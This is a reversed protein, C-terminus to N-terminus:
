NQLEKNSYKREIVESGYKARITEITKPSSNPSKYDEPRYYWMVKKPAFYFGAHKLQLRYPYTNGSVWVWNGILEILIGDFGIISSIIEPYVVFDKQQQGTQGSFEFFPNKVIEQYEANIQQMIATNGGRDPHYKLALEKYCKKVEQLNQCNIFFTTEM